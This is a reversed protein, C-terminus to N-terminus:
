IYMGTDIAQDFSWLKPLLAEFSASSCLAAATAESEIIQTSSTHKSAGM